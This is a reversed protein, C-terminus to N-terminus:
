RDTQRRGSPPRVRVLAPTRELLTSRAATAVLAAFLLLAALALRLFDNRQM